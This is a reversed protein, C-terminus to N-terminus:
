EIQSLPAITEEIQVFSCGCTSVAKARALSKAPPFYCNSVWRPRPSIQPQTSCCGGITLAQSNPRSGPRGKKNDCAAIAQPMTKMARLVARPPPMTGAAELEPVGHLRRPPRAKRRDQCLPARRPEAPFRVIDVLVIALGNVIHMLNTLFTLQFHKTTELTKTNARSRQFYNQWGFPSNAQQQLGAGDHVTRM